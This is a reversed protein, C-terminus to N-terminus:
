GSWGAISRSPAHWVSGQRGPQQRPGAPCRRLVSRAGPDSGSVRDRLRDPKARAPAADFDRSVPTGLVFRGSSGPTRGDCLAGERGTTSRRSECGAAVPRAPQRRFVILVSRGALRSSGTWLLWSCVEEVLRWGNNTPALMWGFLSLGVGDCELIVSLAAEARTRATSGLDDPSTPSKKKTTTLAASIKTTM